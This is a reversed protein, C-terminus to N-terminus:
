RTHASSRPVGASRWRWNARRAPLTTSSSAPWWGNRDWGAVTRSRIRASYRGPWSTGASRRVGAVVPRRARRTEGRARERAQTLDGLGARCAPREAQSGHRGLCARQLGVPPRLELLDASRRRALILREASTPLVAAVVCARCGARPRGSAAESRRQSLWPGSCSGIGVGRLQRCDPLPAPDLCARAPPLKAASGFGWLM